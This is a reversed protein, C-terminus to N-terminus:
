SGGKIEDWYRKAAQETKNEGYDYYHADKLADPLYQQRVYHHPYNHPYRYAPAKASGASDAHVNQLHRPVQGVRGHEIDSMAAIIANHASNSKPATALLIAAEALPLRAEPLGLQLASDVCAKTIAIAQPYALGIDEAAIVLLRRCPSLLDGAM